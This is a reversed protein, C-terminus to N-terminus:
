HTNRLPPAHFSPYIMKLCYPNTEAQTAHRRQARQADLLIGEALLAVVPLPEDHGHKLHSYM